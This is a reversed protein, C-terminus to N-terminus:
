RVSIDLSEFVHEDVDFFHNTHSAEGRIDCYGGVKYDAMLNKLHLFLHELLPSKAEELSKKLSIVTPVMM